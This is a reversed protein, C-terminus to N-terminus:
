CRKIKLLSSNFSLNPKGFPIQLISYVQHSSIGIHQDTVLLIQKPHDSMTIAINGSIGKDPVKHYFIDDILNPNIQTSSNIRLYFSKFHFSDIYYSTDKDTKYNLLNIDFDGM